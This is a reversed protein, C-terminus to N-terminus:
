VRIRVSRFLLFVRRWLKDICIFRKNSKVSCLCFVFIIQCSSSIGTETFVWHKISYLSTGFDWAHIMQLTKGMESYLSVTWLWGKRSLAFSILKVFMSDAQLRVPPSCSSMDVCVFTFCWHLYISRKVTMSLSLSESEVESFM